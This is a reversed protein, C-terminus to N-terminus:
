NWKLSYTYRGNNSPTKSTNIVQVDKGGCIEIATKLFAEMFRQYGPHVEEEYDFILRAHHDNDADYEFAGFGWLEPYLKQFQALFRQPQQAEVYNFFYRDLIIKAFDKGIESFLEEESLPSLRLLQEDLEKLIEFAYHNVPFVQELIFHRANPSLNDALRKILAPEFNKKIYEFRSHFVLGRIGNM